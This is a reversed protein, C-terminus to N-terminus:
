LNEYFEKRMERKFFVRFFNIGLCIFFGIIYSLPNVRLIEFVIIILLCVFYMVITWKVVENFFDHFVKYWNYTTEKM